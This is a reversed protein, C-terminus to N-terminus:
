AAELAAEAEPPTWGQAAIEAAVAGLDRGALLEDAAWRVLEQDPEAERVVHALAEAPNPTVADSESSM